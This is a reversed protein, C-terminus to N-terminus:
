EGRSRKMLDVMKARLSDGENVEVIEMPVQASKGPLVASTGLRAKLEAQIEAQSKPKYENAQGLDDPDEIRLSSTNFKLVIKQGVAAASRTKLFQLEYKGSERMQATTFIGFVNDATNIKSIGGAIHSHDFEAAEVSQRNLQSATVCLCNFEHAMARMEESTYKDKTFASSLDIKSNNPYMLDLYDIVVADPRVGMQIEYEKLYARIDNATTGGEPMKKIRLDGSGKSKQKVAYGVEPIQKLIDKTSIGTTMADIRMSVLDESLELTIYVVNMGMLAWTLAINQLFLSKGSGSGGAFVNLAGRTFGGYLKRDLAEWGTSVFNSRDKVRELRSVADEFYSTGLDTMLSITMAEKIRKEVEAGQGKELLDMGDLIVIELAKFKCFGEITELFWESHQPAVDSFKDITVGSMAKIQEVTPLARYEESYDLIVQVAKSLNSDFYKAKIINQSVAFSTPDSIMFSILVKQVEGDYNEHSNDTM